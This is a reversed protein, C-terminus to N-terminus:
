VTETAQAPSMEAKQEPTLAPMNRIARAEDRTLIGARVQEILLTIEEQPSGQLLGSYDYECFRNRPLLKSLAQEIRSTYTTLTFRAFGRVLEQIGSGWSSAGSESLLERPVGYWRAIEEVGFHRSELFQADVPNMTWPQFNIDAPIFAVDGAHDAGAKAQLGDTVKKAQTKNLTQKSSLVGGLLLGNRFMSAAAKDGAMMTGLSNRAVGIPSLGRMGDYSFGPIHTIDIGTYDIITGDAQVVRFVKGLDKDIRM